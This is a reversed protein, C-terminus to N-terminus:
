VEDISYIFKLKELLILPQSFAISICFKNKFFIMSIANRQEVNQPVFLSSATTALSRKLEVIMHM